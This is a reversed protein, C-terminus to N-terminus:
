GAQTVLDAYEPHRKIYAAIFPCWVVIELGLSRADALAYAALKSGIGQGELRPDIETHTFVIRNDSRKYHLVGRGRWGVRSRLSKCRWRKFLRHRATRTRGRSRGVGRPTAADASM